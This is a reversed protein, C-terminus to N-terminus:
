TWNDRNRFTDIFIKYININNFENIHGTGPSGNVEIFYPRKNERDESPIFDVGVWMGKVSKAAKICESKELETLEM